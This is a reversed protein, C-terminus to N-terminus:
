SGESTTTCAMSTSITGTEIRNPRVEVDTGTDNCWFRDPEVTVTEERDGVEVTVEYARRDRFVVALPAGASFEAEIRRLETGGATVGVSMTAPDGTLNWVWVHPSRYYAPLTEPQEGVVFGRFPDHTDSEIDPSRPVGRELASPDVERVEPPSKPTTSATPPTSETTVTSENSGGSESAVCGGLGATLAIGATRLCRRRSPM